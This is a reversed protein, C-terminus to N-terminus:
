QSFTLPPSLVLGSMVIYQRDPQASSYRYWVHWWLYVLLVSRKDCFYWSINQVNLNNIKEKSNPILTTFSSKCNPKLYYHKSWGVMFCTLRMETIDQTLKRICIGIKNRYFDEVITRHIPSETSQRIAAPEEMTWTINFDVSVCQWLLCCCCGCGGDHVPINVTKRIYCSPHTMETWLTPFM